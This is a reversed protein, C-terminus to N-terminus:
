KSHNNNSISKRISKEIAEKFSRLNVPKTFVHEIGLEVYQQVAAREIKSTLVIVPTISKLGSKILERVLNYGNMVPMQHETIVLAPPSSIIRELAENGNAVISVAYDSAINMLIKSYLIRDRKNPEVLLIKASAVPLSFIFESGKEFESNVDIKGGHKLIIEKVLSLGLGSGKEGATGESSFKTEINFLKSLNDPKIGRGTDKISFQMFRLASSPKASITISDGRKTFKVANSLLNNFVQLVLSKDVFLYHSAEVLNQIKIGKKVANGSVTSISNNILEQANIKEPEFKIRGTQLRTWDLLSNVLALMSKSSEQIYSIYQKKEFESLTDDDILLDTFGLISSFPTRLDHSIISLFRDKAENLKKLNAASVKLEEEARKNFTIDSVLGYIKQVRNESDRIINLKNRVWVVNGEKNIIRLEIEGTTDPISDWLIKLKKKVDTFDDPHIIKLLFRSDSLFEDQTYGTVKQVATTFFLPKFFDGSREFTYLFDDINETISRYKQESERLVKQTRKRETVDMALVVLFIKDEQEFVAASFESYFTSGDKKKALFEIREQTKLGSKKSILYDKVRAVDDESVLELINKSQIETADKYQFIKAFSDNALILKGDLEVAIGDQSATFLSKHVSDPLVKRQIKYSSSLTCYIIHPLGDVTQEVQLILNTQIEDGTFNKIKIPSSKEEGVKLSAIEDKLNVPDDTKILEFFNKSYLEIDPFNLLLKLSQNALLISGTRDIKIMPEATKDSETRSEVAQKKEQEHKIPEIESKKCVIIVVSSDIESIFFTLDVPIKGEIRNEIITKYELQNKNDLEKIINQFENPTVQPFLTTIQQNESEEKKLGTLRQFLDDQYIVEGSKSVLLVANDTLKALEKYFNLENSYTPKSIIEHKAEPIEKFVLYLFQVYGNDGIVPDIKCDTPTNTEETRIELRVSQCIRQRVAISFSELIKQKTTSNFVEGINKGTIEKRFLRLKSNEKGASFKIDGATDTVVIFDESRELYDETLKSKLKLETDTSALIKLDEVILMGGSINEEEYIPFGKIFLSIHGGSQTEVRKIEKEFSNGKIINKLDQALDTSNFLKFEFLNVGPVPRNFQYLIGFKNFNKNIYEVFGDRSYTIIGLPIQDIHISLSEEM